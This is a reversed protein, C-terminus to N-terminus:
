GKVYGYTMIVVSLAAATAGLLPAARFIALYSVAKKLGEGLKIEAERGLEFWTRINFLVYFGLIFGTLLLWAWGFKKNLSGDVM